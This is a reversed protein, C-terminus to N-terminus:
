TSGCQSLLQLDFKGAWDCYVSVPDVLGLVSGKVGPAQCPLWQLALKSDSYSEVWFFGTVAPISGPIKMPESEMACFGKRTLTYGLDLRHVSANWKVSEFSGSM